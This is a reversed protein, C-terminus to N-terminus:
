NEDREPDAPESVTGLTECVGEYWVMGYWEIGRRQGDRM